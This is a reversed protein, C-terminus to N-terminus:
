KWVTTNKSLRRKMGRCSLGIQKGIAWLDPSEAINSHAVMRSNCNIIDKDSISAISIGDKLFSSTGAQSRREKLRTSRRSHSLPEGLEVLGKKKRQRPPSNSKSREKAGGDGSSLPSSLAGLM